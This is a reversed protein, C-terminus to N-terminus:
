KLKLPYVFSSSAASFRKVRMRRFARAVCRGTPTRAFKGLVSVSRPRGSSGSLVVRVRASGKVRYRNYCARASPLIRDVAQRIEGVGPRRPLNTPVPPRDPRVGTTRYSLPHRQPKLTLPRPRPRPRPMSQPPVPVPQTAGAGSSDPTTPESVEGSLPPPVDQGSPAGGQGPEALATRTSPSQRRKLRRAKELRAQRLRDHRSAEDSPKKKCGNLTAIGVGAALAAAARSLFERREAAQLRPALRAIMRQLESGDVACLITREVGTLLVGSTALTAERHHQLDGAFAESAAAMCLLTELGENVPSPATAGCGAAQRHELKEM